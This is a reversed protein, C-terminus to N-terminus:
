TELLLGGPALSGIVELRETCGDNMRLALFDNGANRLDDGLLVSRGCVVILEVGAPPKERLELRLAGMELDDDGMVGDTGVAGVDAKNLAQAAMENEADLLAVMNMEESLEIM